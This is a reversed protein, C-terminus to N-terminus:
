SALLRENPRRAAVSRDFREPKWRLDPEVQLPQLNLLGSAHAEYQRSTTLDVSCDASM